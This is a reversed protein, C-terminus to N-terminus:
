STPAPRLSRSAASSQARQGALLRNPLAMFRHAARRLPGHGFAFATRATDNQRPSQELVKDSALEDWLRIM